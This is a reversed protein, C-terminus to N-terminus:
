RPDSSAPGGGTVVQQVIRALQELQNQQEVYRMLEVARSAQAAAAAPLHEQPIRALYLVQEFQSSLLKSLRSLLEERTMGREETPSSDAQRHRTQLPGAHSAAHSTEAAGSAASALEIPRTRLFARTFAAASACAYKTWAEARKLGVIDSIGRIALMPCRERAARYVGGSEMEIALLNRATQLWPILLEPDKVLRDSSAIPGAAYAPARPMAQSGHHHELTDRLERQWDPPGYLQGKKTWSVPPQKPLDATWDGLEDDRAALNAVLAALTKDIPGGTVAYTPAEGSKRAEVTFDHIRTSVVVDGLKVDDSPRGGAIGVVLVLRPGLDDILDRAADQAEGQGQEILRLVAIRYREGGGADAHRLTYARSAGQLTGAKDPFAALVARFEDDRITVIGIDVKPSPDAAAVPAAVPSITHTMPPKPASPADISSALYRPIDLLAPTTARSSPPRPSLSQSYAADGRHTLRCTSTALEWVKLTKDLSASVVHRGDPTVACATVWHTHGQLTAVARGSGLEWVKLTQDQSASIVHRGDPTVACASVYHTHGALTAVSRGSALEWVKLTKDQSASVVHRGDPTVACARVWDTHGTLDRLLAPSERTAVHLVRLFAVGEPVRLQADLENASWGSRRLRNWVLATTAEPAARLWHSERGLARALEALRGGHAEDGNARCRAATRAVDAEADHVGLERCKAELFAVDAAVRWADAWAGAEARHLLAHHLAYRRAAADAPAPWTALRQALALHHAAFGDVGIAEAVHARISDHHLRYESVRGARRTELLLERAGRLFARRQPEHTWGTVRGLEDLTLADRAACLIGLGDVVPPEIAIREWASAILALLGRPIDSARRQEPPQGSLHLRLMVAHQLNGGAREVAQTIFQADLGLEPAAHDWFARVTAANDDAFSPADDLDIQVLAGRMALKDIYPHRPRSACLVSVGPPLAYPLFAALPDGAPSGPQPDYEDLGDILLVLREGCPVLARESVRLLAAALRAAPALRADAEPECLDPFRADIQAVLSGVMAEPDDWDAWGRRIFHHPVTDGAAERRALWTALAASKGMGPGGTVVVWRQATDEILERDLRALLDARGVFGVHRQREYAFSIAERPLPPAGAPVEGPQLSRQERGQTGGRSGTSAV